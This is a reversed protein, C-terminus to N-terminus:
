SHDRPFRTIIAYVSETMRNVAKDRLGDQPLVQRAADSAMQLADARAESESIAQLIENNSIEDGTRTQPDMLNPWLQHGQYTFPPAVGSVTAKPKPSAMDGDEGIVLEFGSQQQEYILHSSPDSRVVEREPPSAPNLSPAWRVVSTYSSDATAPPTVDLKNPLAPNLDAFAYQDRQRGLRATEESIRQAHM